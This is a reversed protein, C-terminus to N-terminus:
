GSFCIARSRPGIWAKFVESVTIVTESNWMEPNQLPFSLTEVLIHDLKKGKKNTHPLASYSPKGSPVPLFWYLIWRGTWSIYSVQNWGRPWSSGRSSPMAVWELTRAQLNGPVSSGRPSYNTSECLRVRSFCSFVCVRPLTAVPQLRDPSM